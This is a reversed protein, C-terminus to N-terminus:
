QRRKMFVPSRKANKNSQTQRLVARDSAGSAKSLETQTAPMETSPETTEPEDPVFEIEHISSTEDDTNIIEAAGESASDSQKNSGRTRQQTAAKLTILPVEDDTDSESDRSTLHNHSSERESRWHGKELLRRSDLVNKLNSFTTNSKRGFLLEYPTKETTAHKCERLESLM